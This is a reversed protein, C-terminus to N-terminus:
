ELSATSDPEVYSVSDRAAPDSNKPLWPANKEDWIKQLYHKDRLTDMPQWFSRHSYVMLSREYALKELPAHELICDKSAELYRRFGRQFFFYGGNILGQRDAPKEIFGTVTNDEAIDLEGFRAPPPVGLVTGLKAHGAHFELEKSLDVDCLGDGYTVAFDDFDMFLTTEDLARALRGGTMTHLGTDLVHVEWKEQDSRRNIVFPPRDASRRHDVVLHNRRYEYSLFYEKITWSQYGGCVIFKDFGQSYYWRMIHVLVPIEGIEIMPKPRLHSEESIRTGLGGALIFVPVDRNKIAM